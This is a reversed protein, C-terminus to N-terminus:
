TRYIDSNILEMCIEKDKSIQKTLETISAFKIEDRLKKVFFLTITEHYIDFDFDFFNAEISIVHEDSVTPRYGINAMGFYKVNKYFSYIFYVGTPPLLKHEDDPKINATPFGITRGRQMGHIVEGRLGYYHGLLVKATEFDSNLLANRISTSSILHDSEGIRDLKEISFDHSKSLTHLLKEDGVRDKGFLHDYGVLIKSLGIKNVLYEVVFTSASIQSFEYTFPIILVNDIGLKNFLELREDISTLLSVKQKGQKQLVIQPHPHITLLINRLQKEKSIRLLNKIIYQHGLHVGDFTGLTLITNKDYNIDSFGRFINM